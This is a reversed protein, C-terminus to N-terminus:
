RFLDADASRILKKGDGEAPIFRYGRIIVAPIAADKEM